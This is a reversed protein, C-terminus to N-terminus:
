GVLGVVIEDMVAECLMLLGGGSLVREDLNGAGWVAGRGM